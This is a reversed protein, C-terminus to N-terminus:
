VEGDASCWVTMSSRDANTPLFIYYKGDVDGSFWKVAGVDNPNQAQLTNVAFGAIAGSEAAAAYVCIAAFMAIMVALAMMLKYTRKM